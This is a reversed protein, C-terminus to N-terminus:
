EARYSKSDSEIFFIDEFQAGLKTHINKAIKPSPCKEDNVIQNLYPTTIKLEKAFDAQSYGNIILLRRLENPDKVKIKM